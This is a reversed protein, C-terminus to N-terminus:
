LKVAKRGTLEEYRSVIVDCFIPELEVMYCSRKLQECAVMLSGSGACTDLIIDGPRSCRRLAKEHLTPPKQTPHQYSAAPDRKALWIDFLDIVDDITRNGPAVEKNLVETLNHINSLYPSGITGYCCPEYAKNFAVQPTMNFNNKLWICIRKTSIGLEGYIKQILGTYLQDCFCFVHADPKTVALANALITKLFKEYEDDSLNDNTSGGYKGTTSIGKNYDLRINYKPDIDIVDALKSGMLKQIVLLDTADGCVLVHDGLLYRDGLQTVPEKIKNVADDIDFNDDETTLADDWISSLDSDDFGVSLLENIDFNKLADLDFEGTNRNLRLNLAREHKEDLNVFVVPATTYGLQMIARLRQHGGVVTGYREPHSNVVLPEVLSYQRISEVLQEFDKDSIKRANYLAPKLKSIAMETVTLITESKQM